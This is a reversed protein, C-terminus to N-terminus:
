SWLSKTKEPSEKKKKKKAKKTSDNSPSSDNPQITFENLFAIWDGNEKPMKWSKVRPYKVIEGTELNWIGLSDKPM